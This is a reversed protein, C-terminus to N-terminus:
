CTNPKILQSHIARLVEQAGAMASSIENVTVRVERGASEASAVRELYKRDIVGLNHTIPHRKEFTEQLVQVVDSDVLQAVVVEFEEELVSTTREINQFPNGTHKKFFGQVEEETVGTERLKRAVLAKVVAEFISVTDELCNELDRAAVRPGLLDRRRDVDSLVVEVVAFEAGVHTLFIDRGCDPCWVAIGFVAHDLGCHPCTVARQLDDEFPRRVPQRPSSKYTWEMSVFGADVKKKGSAGLGLENKVMQDIGLEVERTATDKAFRVQEQTAFQDPSATHRCYPCYASQQVGALGTGPTIKFYGPSCDELPCSRGIRGHNDQPIAISFAYEEPGIRRIDHAGGERFLPNRM